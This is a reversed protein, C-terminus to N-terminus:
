LTMYNSSNEAECCNEVCYIKYRLVIGKGRMRINVLPRKVLFFEGLPSCKVLLVTIAYSSLINHRVEVNISDLLIDM